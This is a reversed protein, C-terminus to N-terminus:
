AVLATMRYTSPSLGFRRGFARTFAANNQYGNRYGILAIPLDTAILQRQAEALRREVLAENVTCGYLDRFGRALKGRNVGCQRALQELTLKESWELDIIQRAVAIRKRDACSLGAAPTGEELLGCRHAEFLECLLEINKALRYPLAAAPPLRCDRIAVAIAQLGAPLYRVSGGEWDLPQGLLRECADRAVLQLLRAEGATGEALSAASQGHFHLRAPSRRDGFFIELAVANAPWTERSPVGDGVVALMEPSVYIAEDGSAFRQGM